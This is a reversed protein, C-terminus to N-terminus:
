SMWIADVFTNNPYKFSLECANKCAAGCKVGLSEAVFNLVVMSKQETFETGIDSCHQLGFM